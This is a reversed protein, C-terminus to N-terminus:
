CMKRKGSEQIRQEAIQDCGSGTQCEREHHWARVSAAADNEDPLSIKRQVKERRERKAQSM